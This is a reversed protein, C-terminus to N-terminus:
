GCDYSPDHIISLSLWCVLRLHTSAWFVPVNKWDQNAVWVDKNLFFFFFLDELTLMMSSDVITDFTLHRSYFEANTSRIVAIFVNTTGPCIYFSELNYKETKSLFRLCPSIFPEAVTFFFCFGSGYASEFSIGSQRILIQNKKLWLSSTSSLSKRGAMKIHCTANKSFVTLENNVSNWPNQARLQLSAYNSHMRLYKSLSWTQKFTNGNIQQACLNYSCSWFLM